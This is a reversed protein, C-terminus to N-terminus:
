APVERPQMSEVVQNAAHKVCRRCDVPATREVPETWGRGFPIEQGCMTRDFVMAMSMTRGDITTSTSTAWHTRGRPSRVVITTM